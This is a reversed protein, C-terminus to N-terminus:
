VTYKSLTDDPIGTSTTSEVLPISWLLKYRGIWACNHSATKIWRAVVWEM